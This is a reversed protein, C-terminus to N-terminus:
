RLVIHHPPVKRHGVVPGAIPVLSANLELSKMGRM